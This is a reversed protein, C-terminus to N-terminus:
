AVTPDHAADRVPGGAPEAARDDVTDDRQRRRGRRGGATRRRAPLRCHVEGNRDAAPRSRPLREFLRLHQEGGPHRLVASDAGPAPQGLCAEQGRPLSEAALPAQGAALVAASTTASISSDIRSRQQICTSDFWPRPTSRNRARDPVGPVGATDPRAATGARRSRRAIVHAQSECPRGDVSRQDLFRSWRAAGISLANSRSPTSGDQQRREGISRGGAPAASSGIPVAVAGGRGATLPQAFLGDLRTPRRDCRVPVPASRRRCTGDSRQARHRRGRRLGARPSRGCWSARAAPPTVAPSSATPRPRGAAGARADLGARPRGRRGLRDLLSGRETGLSDLRSCSSTARSSPAAGRSPGSRCPSRRRPDIQVEEVVVARIHGADDGLFAIAERAWSEVVGEEHAASTRHIKPWQPWPNRHRRAGRPGHTTTSSPSASRM